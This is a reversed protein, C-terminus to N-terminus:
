LVDDSKTTRKEWDKCKFRGHFPPYKPLILKDHAECGIVGKDNLVIIHKCTACIGETAKQHAMCDQLFGM